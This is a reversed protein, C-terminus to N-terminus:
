FLKVASSLYSFQLSNDSNISVYIHFIMSQDLISGDPTAVSHTAFSPLWAQNPDNTDPFLEINAHDSEELPVPGESTNVTPVFYAHLFIQSHHITQSFYTQDRGLLGQSWSCQGPALHSGDKKISSASGAYREFNYQVKAEPSGSSNAFTETIIATNGSLSGRCVLHYVTAHASACFGLAAALTIFSCSRKTNM